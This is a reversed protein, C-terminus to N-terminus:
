CERKFRDAFLALKSTMNQIVKEKGKIFIYPNKMDDLVVKVYSEEDSEWNRIFDFDKCVYYNHDMILIKLTKEDFLINPRTYDHEFSTGFESNISKIADIMDYSSKKATFIKVLFIIFCILLGTMLTDDWTWKQLMAVFYLVPGVMLLAFVTEGSGRM